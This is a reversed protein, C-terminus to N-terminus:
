VGRSALNTKPERCEATETQYDEKQKQQRCKQTSAFLCNSPTKLFLQSFGFCFCVFFFGLKADSDHDRCLLFSSSDAKREAKNEKQGARYFRGKMKEKICSNADLNGRYRSRLRSRQLQYLQSSLLNEM